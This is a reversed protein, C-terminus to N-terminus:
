QMKERPVPTFHEHVLFLSLVFVIALLMGTIFVTMRMSFVAALTGGLIPGILNGSVYGTTLIGLASGSKEKPTETAILASANPIYGACLGQLFRLLILMWVNHVFGMMAIVIAMGASSRLLM